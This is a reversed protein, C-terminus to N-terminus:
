ESAASSTEEPAETTFDIDIDSSSAGTDGCAEPTSLVGGYCRVDNIEAEIAGFVEEISLGSFWERGMGGEHRYRALRRHTAVEVSGANLFCQEYRFKFPLGKNHDILRRACNCTRGIAFLGPLMEASMVYLTDEQHPYREIWRARRCERCYSSHKGFDPINMDRRCTVCLPM